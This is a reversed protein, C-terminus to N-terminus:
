YRVDNEVLINYEESMWKKLNAGVEIEKVKLIREVFEIGVDREHALKIIGMLSKKIAKEDGYEVAEYLTMNIAALEKSDSM